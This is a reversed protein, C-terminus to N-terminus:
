LCSLSPTYCNWCDLVSFRSWFSDPFIKITSLKVICKDCLTIIAAQHTSRPNLELLIYPYIWDFLDPPDLATFHVLSGFSLLNRTDFLDKFFHHVNMNVPLSNFSIICPACIDVIPSRLLQISSHAAKAFTNVQTNLADDSHAFVKILKVKLNSRSLIHRISLWFLHNHQRLLKSSFSADFFQSWLSILQACDTAIAVSSNPSLAKLGFLIAHIESRLPSPFCSPLCISSSELIFGDEDLAIWASAMSPSSNDSALHFSGDVYLISVSSPLPDDEASYLSSLSLILPILSAPSSKDNLTNIALSTAYSWSTSLFIPLYAAFIKTNKTPYSTTYILFIFKFFANKVTIANDFLPNKPFLLSTLLAAPVLTIHVRGIILTQTASNYNITWQPSFLGDKNVTHELLCPSPYWTVFTLGHCSTNEM